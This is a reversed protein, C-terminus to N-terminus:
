FEVFQCVFLILFTAFTSYFLSSNLVSLSSPYFFSIQVSVSISTEFSQNFSSQKLPSVSHPPHSSQVESPSSIFQRQSSSTQIVPSFSSTKFQFQFPVSLRFQSLFQSYQNISKRNLHISLRFQSLFQSYHFSQVSLHLKSNSSFQSQCVSSHCFIVTISMRTLHFEVHLRCFQDSFRM